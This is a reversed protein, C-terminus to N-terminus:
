VGLEELRGRLGDMQAQTPNGLPLRAPGLPVGKWGMVAKAAGLYGVSALLSIVEVAEAQLEMARKEDRSRLALLLEHYRPAMFNYSSGVAGVAGVKVADLLKEDIGWALDFRGDGVKRCEAFEKLNDNTYKIGCLNPIRGGAQKLFEPMSFSVGTLVPIDYYYFPLSPAAGAIAACWDVLVDLSSPKYYSPALAATALFGMDASAAAFYKADELCNSGVHAVVALGRKPGAEAWADFIQVREDRTLSHGEGTSGTIFVTQIGQGALFEAQVAVVEPALSGDKHFPTHTAAVLGELKLGGAATAMKTITM